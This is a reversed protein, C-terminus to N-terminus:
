REINEKRRSIASRMFSLHKAKNRELERKGLSEEMGNTAMMHINVSINSAAEQGFVRIDDIYDILRNKILGLKKAFFWIAERKVDATPENPDRELTTSSVGSDISDATLYTTDSSFETHNLSRLIDKAIRREFYKRAVEPAIVEAVMRLENIDYMEEYSDRAYDVIGDEQENIVYIPNNYYDEDDRTSENEIPLLELNVNSMIEKINNFIGNVLTSSKTGRQIRKLLRCFDIETMIREAEKESYYFNKLEEITYTYMDYPEFSSNEYNVKDRHIESELSEIFEAFAESERSNWFKKVLSAKEDYGWNPNRLMWYKIDYLGIGHSHQDSIAAQTIIDKSKKTLYISPNKLLLLLFSDRRTHYLPSAVTRQIDRNEIIRKVIIRRTRATLDDMHNKLVYDIIFKGKLTKTGQNTLIITAAWNFLDSDDKVADWLKEGKECESSFAIKRFKEEVEKYREEQEQMTLEKNSQNKKKPKKDKKTGGIGKKTIIEEYEKRVYDPMCNGFFSNVFEVGYPSYKLMEQGVYSVCCGSMCFDKALKMVEESSKGQAYAEMIAGTIERASLHIILDLDDMVGSLFILDKICNNWDDRKSEICFTAYRSMYKRYIPALYTNVERDGSKHREKLKEIEEDSLYKGSPLNRLERVEKIVDEISPKKLEKKWSM